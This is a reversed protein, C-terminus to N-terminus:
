NERLKRRYIFFLNTSMFALVVLTVGTVYDRMLVNRMVLIKGLLVSVTVLMQSLYDFIINFCYIFVNQAAILIGSERIFPVAVYALMNWGFIMLGLISILWLAVVKPSTYYARRTKIGEIVKLEFGCPVEIEPLGELTSIAESLVKFEEACGSCKENHKIIMERELESINGDFYKMVLSNIETCQM